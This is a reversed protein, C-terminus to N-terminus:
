FSLIDSMLSRFVHHDSVRLGETSTQAGRRAGHRGPREVEERPMEQAM